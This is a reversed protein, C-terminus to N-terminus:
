RQFDEIAERLRAIGELLRPVPVSAYCIRAWTTFHEGFGDGPALLVGRDIACELLERLPRGDLVDALDIFVYCGGEPAFCKARSGELADLTADRADRYKRRAEDVWAEGGAIASLAVRQAAVPVNYITHTAIRRALAVVREPAVAFGVRAGALAHSKSLSYACVTRESMGDLRAISRHTGTYVYDAYVEDSIVWLGAHIAFEAVGALQRESFVKGDPNNPSTMCVARVRPTSAAALAARVDLSPDSYLQLSLPVEIPVAGAARVV